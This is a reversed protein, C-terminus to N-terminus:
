LDLILFVFVPKKLLEITLPLVGSGFKFELRMLSPNDNQFCNIKDIIFENIKNFIIELDGDETMVHSAEEVYFLEKDKMILEESGQFKNSTCGRQQFPTNNNFIVTETSPYVFQTVEQPNHEEAAIGNYSYLGLLIILLFILNLNM